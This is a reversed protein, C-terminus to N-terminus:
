RGMHADWQILSVHAEDWSLSKTEVMKLTSKPDVNINSFVKINRKKLYVVFDMCISSRGDIFFKGIAFTFLTSFISMNSPIQSLTWVQVTSPYEFFVHNILEECEKCRACIINELIERM